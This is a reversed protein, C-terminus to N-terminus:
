GAVAVRLPKLFHWEGPNQDVVQQVAPCTRLWHKVFDEWLALGHGASPVMEFAHLGASLVTCMMDALVLVRGRTEGQEPVPESEYFYPYLEPHEVIVRLVENLKVMVDNTVSAGNIDNSIKVQRGAAGAQLATFACAALAVAVGALALVVEGAM